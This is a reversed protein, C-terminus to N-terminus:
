CIIFLIFYIDKQKKSNKKKKNVFNEVDKQFKVELYAAIFSLFFYKDEHELIISTPLSEKEFDFRFNFFLLNFIYLFLFVDKM